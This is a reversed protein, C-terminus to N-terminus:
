KSKEAEKEKKKFYRRLLFSHQMAEMNEDLKSSASETNTMTTKLNNAFATDTLLVGLANDNDNIKSTIKELDGSMQKANTSVESVNVLASEFTSVYSTDTFLKDVLGEGNNIKHATQRLEVTMRNTNDSASKLSSVTARLDRSLPGENLLEGLFGEGNNLRDTISKFDETISQTNTGVEKAINFLEQTDTPSFSNITDGDAIVQTSSGPRIIVIKNGIFGDSGIIATADKKIFENQKEKLSMQVMVKGESIIQVNKVTGVKVGSLWINDGSKLGEVNKFVASVMYTKNFYNNESGLYFVTSLFIIISGIVFAGLKINRKYEQNTM